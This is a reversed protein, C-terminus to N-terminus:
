QILAEIESAQEVHPGIPNLGTPNEMSLLRSGAMPNLGYRDCLQKLASRKSSITVELRRGDTTIEFELLAGGLIKRGEAAALAKRQRILKRKEKELQRVDAHLSCIMELCPGDISRLTGNGLMQQSYFNWYRRAAASMGKPREPVGFAMAERGPPLARHSTNGGYQRQERSRPIPGFQAM